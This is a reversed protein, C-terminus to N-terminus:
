RIWPPVVNSRNCTPASFRLLGFHPRLLATYTHIQTTHNTIILHSDTNTVEREKRM